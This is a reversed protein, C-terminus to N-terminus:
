YAAKNLFDNLPKLIKFVSVCYDIFDKQMTKKNSVKHGVYRSKMKLLDGAKHEKDFGRPINKLKDWEISGFIKKFEPKKIIRELQKHNKAIYERVRKLIPPPPM